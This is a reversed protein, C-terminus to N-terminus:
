CDIARGSLCRTVRNNRSLVSKVRCSFFPNHCYTFCKDNSPALDEMTFALNKSWSLFCGNYELHRLGEAKTSWDPSIADVLLRCRASPATYRVDCLTSTISRKNAKEVHQVNEKEYLRSIVPVATSFKLRDLKQLGKKGEAVLDDVIELIDQVLPLYVDLKTTKNGGAYLYKHYLYIADGDNDSDM